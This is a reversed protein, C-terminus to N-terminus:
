VDSRVEIELVVGPPLVIISAMHVGLRRRNMVAAAAEDLHEGTPAVAYLEGLSARVVDLPQLQTPRDM